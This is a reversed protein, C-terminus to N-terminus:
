GTMAKQTTTSLSDLCFEAVVDTFEAPFEEHPLHGCDEFIIMRADPIEKHLSEGNRLPV